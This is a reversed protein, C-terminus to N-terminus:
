WRLRPNRSFRITGGGTVSVNDDWYLVVGGDVDAGRANLVATRSNRSRTGHFEVEIEQSTSTTPKLEEGRHTVRTRRVCGDATMEDSMSTITTPIQTAITVYLTVNRFWYPAMTRGKPRKMKYGPRSPPFQVELYAMAQGHARTEVSEYACEGPSPDFRYSYVDVTV